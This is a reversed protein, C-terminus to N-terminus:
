LGSVLKSFDELVEAILKNVDLSLLKIENSVNNISPKVYNFASHLMDHSALSIVDFM